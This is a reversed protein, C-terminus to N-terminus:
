FMKIRRSRIPTFWLFVVGRGVCELSVVADMSQKACERFSFVFFFGRYKLIDHFHAYFILAKSFVKSSDSKPIYKKKRRPFVDRKLCFAAFRQGM